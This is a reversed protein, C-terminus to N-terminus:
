KNKKWDSACKKMSSGDKMCKSMHRQYGSVKSKVINKLKGASSALNKLGCPKIGIPLKCTPIRAVIPATAPEAAVIAAKVAIGLCPKCTKPQKDKM